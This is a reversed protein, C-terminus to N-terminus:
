RQRDFIEPFDTVLAIKSLGAQKIMDVVAMVREYTLNRDARLFIQIESNEEAVAGLRIAVVETEIAVEGFYIQGDADISIVLPDRTENLPDLAAEPVDVEIGFSLLPAAVMFIIVLVLMVDVFPAVNIESVLRVRHRRRIRLSEASYSM